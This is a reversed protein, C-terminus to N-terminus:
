NPAFVERRYIAQASIVRRFPRVTQGLAGQAGMGYTGAYTGGYLGGGSLSGGVLGGPRDGSNLETVSGDDALNPNGLNPELAGAPNPRFSSMSASQFPYNIRLAVVGRADSEISFPDPNTDSEIEEVVPVWRITEGGNAGRSVVLPIGVTYGTPTTADSLLAGPYRILNADPQGDGDLDPRDVIMLTALQQNLTPWTPVIDSFFNQNGLQNLDFVLFQPDYIENRIVDAQLADDFNFARVGNGDDVIAPLPTRSIERAALDAASQLGQAVYLAHGFTLIAALLMYLVLAVVSFEVLSQGRRTRITRARM